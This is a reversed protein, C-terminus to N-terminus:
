IKEFDGLGVWSQGREGSIKLDGLGVWIQGRERRQM